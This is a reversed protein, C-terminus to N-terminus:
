NKRGNGMAAELVNEATAESKQFEATVKGRHMVIIRDSLALLEPMESTILLISMGTKTMQDILTYIEHKAGVDVGRTPEDLLIVQPNTQLWKALVVKQQNGGSLVNVESDYSPVRLNLRKGHKMAAARESKTNRWGYTVFSKLDAMCVNDIVSMSTILGNAKRDNTLLALGHDIADKPSRIKLETGNLVMREAVSHRYGGFLGTLLESAGSGQLGAIGLVEGSRVTLNVGDVMKKNHGGSDYITANEVRFKEEGLVTTGERKIQDNIERGVMGNILKPIPLNVAMDTIIFKGDRLITIRDALREIEEMRHTIYVIGRGESKLKDILTFLRDADQTNLASSPEDMIIVKADLSIARSIEILQRMSIPLDEVLKRTDVTIGVNELLQAAKAAQKDDLVFGAKTEPRGLFLNNAVSMSPILTLEQHIVSIGIANAEIPSDPHVQKGEFWIEGEYSTHVGTLIKILTTKGAGNEGALVHVEGPYIDFDVNELVRVNGFKKGIKKMQVIPVSEQEVM